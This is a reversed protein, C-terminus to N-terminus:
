NLISLQDNIVWYRGGREDGNFTTAANITQGSADAPIPSKSFIKIKQGQRNALRNIYKEVERAEIIEIEAIFIPMEPQIDLTSAQVQWVCYVIGIVITKNPAAPAAGRGISPLSPSSSDPEITLICDGDFKELSSTPALLPSDISIITESVPDAQSLVLTSIPTSLPSTTSTIIKSLLGNKETIPSNNKEPELKSVNLGAVTCAMSLLLLVVPIILQFSNKM